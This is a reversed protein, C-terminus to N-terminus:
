LRDDQYIADLLIARGRRLAATDLMIGSESWDQRHASLLRDVGDLRVNEARRHDSDRVQSLAM